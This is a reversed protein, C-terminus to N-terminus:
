RDGFLRMILKDRWTLDFSGDGVQPGFTKDCYHCQLTSTITSSKKISSAPILYKGLVEYAHEKKGGPCYLAKEAADKRNGRALLVDKVYVFLLAGAFGIVLLIFLSYNVIAFVTLFGNIANM